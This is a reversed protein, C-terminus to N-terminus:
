KSSVLKNEKKSSNKFTLMINAKTMSYVVLVALSAFGIIGAALTESKRKSNSSSDSGSDLREYALLSLISLIVIFVFSLAYAIKKYRMPTIDERNKETLILIVFITVIVISMWGLSSGIVLYDHARLSEDTGRKVNTAASTMLSAIIIELAWLVLISKLGTNM